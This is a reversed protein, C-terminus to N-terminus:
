EQIIKQPVEDGRLGEMAQDGGEPVDYDQEEKERRSGLDPILFLTNKNEERTAVRYCDEAPINKKFRDCTRKGVQLFQRVQQEILSAPDGHDVKLELAQEV